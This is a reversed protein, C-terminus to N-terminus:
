GNQEEGGLYSIVKNGKIAKQLDNILSIETVSIGPLLLMDDVTMALIDKESAFGEELLKTITKVARSNIKAM